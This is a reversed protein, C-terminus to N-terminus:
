DAEILKERVVKQFIEGRVKYSSFMDWSPCGPSLLLCQEKGMIEAGYAAAEELSSFIKIEELMDARGRSIKESNFKEQNKMKLNKKKFNNKNLISKDKNTKEENIKENNSIESGSKKRNISLSNSVESNLNKAIKEATEGILLLKKVSKRIEAALENFDANRDQGGAILIIDKDISKLATLAASPNTAKSDDIVLYNKKNAVREMRHNKLTYNEAASQIKSLSQGNLYATLSAFALNEANHIGPLEVKTLDLLTIKEGAKNRYTISKNEILVDASDSQSSVTFTEANLENGLQALYSDDINILARDRSGQNSFIKKKANKYNEVTKHRDLHDPSFNLYVATDAKFQEVAELQFSSLELIVLDGEKLDDVVSIFPIGINGATMVNRGPLNELMSSLLDTTTTKGNTGTVAIIEANCRRYAFEIESITEIGMSRAKKLVKLDYPVGPSLLILEAELLLQSNGGLDFKINQSDVQSILDALQNRSKSDSVIIQAGYKKLYKVLELGTRPSFGVVAVKKNKLYM